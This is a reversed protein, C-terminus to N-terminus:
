LQNGKSTAGLDCYLDADPDTTTNISLNPYFLGRRGRVSKPNPKVGCEVRVMARDKISDPGEVQLVVTGLGQFRQGTPLREASM